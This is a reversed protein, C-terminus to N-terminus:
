AISFEPGVTTAVRTLASGPQVKGQVVPIASQISCEASIHVVTV